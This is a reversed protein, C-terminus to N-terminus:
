HGEEPGQAADDFGPGAGAAQLPLPLAVVRDAADVLVPWGRRRYGPVGARALRDAVPRGHPGATEGPRWPRAILPLPLAGADTRERGPAASPASVVLRGLPLTYVGPTPIAVTYAPLSAARHLCLEGRRWVATTRGPLNVTRGAALPGAMAAWAEAGPGELGWRRELLRALLRRLIAPPPLPQLPLAVWNWGHLAPEALRAALAQLAEDDERLRAASLALRRAAGPRETEFLPLYRERVRNRFAREVANSPDECWAEGRARLWAELAERPVDLLPRVLNRQRPAMAALGPLAAGEILRMLLTVAQDDAHHATLIFGEGAVERLFAYRAERLRAALNGVAATDLALRTASLSVGLRACLRGVFEAEAPGEPRLGHDVHAVRLHPRRPGEALALLLAVSDRGGSVAAVLPADPPIGLRALVATVHTALNVM